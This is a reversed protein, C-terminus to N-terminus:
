DVAYSFVKYRGRQEILSGFLTLPAERGDATRVIVRSRRHVTFSPYPTAEGAFEVRVVELRSGAHRALTQRLSNRSKQALDNWVFDAPLNREPRSAPLEPWVVERFERDDLALAALRGEDGHELATVLDQVVADPSDLTGELTTATRTCGGAMVVSATVVVSAAVLVWATRARACANDLRTRARTRCTSM